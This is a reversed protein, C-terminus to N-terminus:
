SETEYNLTNDVHLFIFIKKTTVYKICLKACFTIHEYM